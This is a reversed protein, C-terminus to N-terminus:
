IFCALRLWILPILTSLLTKLFTWNLVFLLIFFRVERNSRVNRAIVAPIEWFEDVHGDSM